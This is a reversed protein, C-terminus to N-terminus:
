FQRGVRFASKQGSYGRIILQPQNWTMCKSFHWTQKASKLFRIKLGGRNNKACIFTRKISTGRKYCQLSMVRRVLDKFNQKHLVASASATEAKETLMLNANETEKLKQELINVTNRLKNNDSQLTLYNLENNYIKLTYKVEGTYWKRQMKNRM